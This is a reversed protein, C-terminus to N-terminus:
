VEVQTQRERLHENQLAARMNSCLGMSPRTYNLSVSGSLWFGTGSIRIFSGESLELGWPELRRSSNRSIFSSLCNMGVTGWVFEQGVSDVLM